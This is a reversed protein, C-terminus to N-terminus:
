LDNADEQAEICRDYDHAMEEALYDLLEYTEWGGDAEYEAYINMVLEADMTYLENM